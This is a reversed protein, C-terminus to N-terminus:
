QRGAVRSVYNDFAAAFRQPANEDMRLYMSPEIVELEMLLFRGHRDRVFDVRAYVPTPRVERIVKDGAITLAPEPQVATIDAGYEEQVRFDGSKPVKQIAHSYSADFYFLSFEGERRINDIFPQIVFPRNSFTRYLQGSMAAVNNRHLLITDTANTSVVPKIIIADVAFLDFASEPVGAALNDFWLSPVIDVGREGLDRLYTKPITWKVLAVDNVLIARSRDIKELLQVFQELAQPYDWPTGIYVADFSNWDCQATRWPVPAVQWGLEEMHPFALDADISWGADNEMTLYACRKVELPL